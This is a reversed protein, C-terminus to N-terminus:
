QGHCRPTKEGLMGLDEHADGVVGPHPQAVDGRHHADGFSASGSEPIRTFNVTSQPGPLNM